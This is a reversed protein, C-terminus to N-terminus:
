ALQVGIYFTPTTTHVLFFKDDKVLDEVVDFVIKFFNVRIQLKGLYPAKFIVGDWNCLLLSSCLYAM